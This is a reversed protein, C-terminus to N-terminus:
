YASFNMEFVQRVAVPTGDPAKAPEFRWTKTVDVSAQDADPRLGQVVRPQEVRGDTTVVASLIVVGSLRSIGNTGPPKMQNAKPMTVGDIRGFYFPWGAAATKAPFLAVTAANRAEVYNSRLLEKGSRDSLVFDISAEGNQPSLVTNLIADLGFHSALQEVVEPRVVDCDTWHNDLLFRHVNSRPLVAFGAANVDLLQSFRGAFYASPGHPRKNSDCADPLYLTHVGLHAINKAMEQAAVNRQNNVTQAHAGIAALLLITLATLVHRVSQRRLRTMKSLTTM